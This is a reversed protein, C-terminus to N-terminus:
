RFGARDFERLFGKTEPTLELDGTSWGDFRIAEGKLIAAKLLRREGDLFELQPNGRSSRGRSSFPTRAVMRIQDRFNKAAQNKLVGIEVSLMQNSNMDFQLERIVIRDCNRTEWRFRLNDLPLIGTAAGAYITIAVLAPLGLAILLRRLTFIKPKSATM